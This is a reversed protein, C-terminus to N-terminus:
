MPIRVSSFDQTNMPINASLERRTNLISDLLKKINVYREADSDSSSAGQVHKLGVVSNESGIWYMM